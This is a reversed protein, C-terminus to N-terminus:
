RDKELRVTDIVTELATRDTPEAEHDLFWIDIFDPIPVMRSAVCQPLVSYSMLPCYLVNTSLLRHNSCSRITQRKTLVKKKARFWMDIFDPIPVM